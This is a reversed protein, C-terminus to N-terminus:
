YFIGSSFIRGETYYDNFKKDPGYYPDHMIINDGELGILVVFHTGYKGARLGAVIPQGSRLKERIQSKPIDAYKVGGPWSFNSRSLFYATNAFFYDTNSAINVPSQDVGRAKLSMAVSTVLCGVELIIEKSAGIRQNAWRSDRQSMYWGNNGSGFGNAGIAGGGAASVFSKFGELQSQAESLMRQYQAEEQKTQSLAEKTKEASKAENTVAEESKEKKISLSDLDELKDANIDVHAAKVREARFSDQVKEARVFGSYFLNNALTTFSESAFFIDFVSPSLYSKKYEDVASKLVEGILNSVELDLSEIQVERDQIQNTIDETESKIKNIKQKLTNIKQVKESLESNISSVQTRKENLKQQCAEVIAKIEEQSKGVTSQCDIALVSQSSFRLIFILTITFITLKKM